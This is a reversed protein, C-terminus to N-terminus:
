QPSPAAPERTVGPLILVEGRFMHYDEFAFSTMMTLYPGWTRFDQEWEAPRAVARARMLTVSRLPVIFTRGGITVPGYSVMMEARDEPMFDGLDGILTIRLLAGSAPDLTIQGHYAPTATYPQDGRGRPLCCGTVRFRSQAAPVQYRFVATEVGALQEWHSWTLADPHRLADRVTALLPGFTGYARISGHERRHRGPHADVIEAGQRYLVTGRSHEIVHIPVPHVIIEGGDYSPTEGYEVAVRTAFFNPLRPIARNLYALALTLIQQQAATAPPPDPRICSPPPDLFASPAAVVELARRSKNGRVLAELSDLQERSLRETLRVLSLEQAAEADSAGHLRAVLQQLRAVTFDQTGPPPLDTYWPEAYYGTSTRAALGPDRLRLQLTHFEHPRAAVPPNFSLTYFHSGAQICAALQDALHDAVLSEGGSQIALVDKYLAMPHAQQASPVGSLFDRWGTGLRGEPLPLDQGMSLTFLDIRATRLLLSLWYIKNFIDRQGTIVRGDAAGTRFGSIWNGDPLMLTGTGSGPGPGVWLLLKRGPSQRLSTAIVALARLGTIPADIRYDPIEGPTPSFAAPSTPPRLQLAQLKEHAMASALANGDLSPQALLGFGWDELVYIGVPEDLHGGNRRLFQEVARREVTAAGGEMNLADLLIIVTVPEQLHSVFSVITQPQGNDLLTFDSRHLGIVPQGSPTTVTADLHILGELQQPNAPAQAPALATFCLLLALCVCSRAAACGPQRAKALRPAHPIASSPM